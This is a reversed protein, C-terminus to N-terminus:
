ASSERVLVKLIRRWLRTFTSEGSAILHVTGRIASAPPVEPENLASLSVQYQATSPVLRQNADPQTEIPGGHVSALALTDIASAASVAIEELRVRMSSLQPVEPIFRGITHPQIRWLDPESVYGTLRLSRSGNILVLQENASIWRGPHLGANLEAVVGGTPARVELETRENALGQLRMELSQREGVLLLTDNRDSGDAAQRDLRVRVSKLRARTVTEDWAIDPAELRALLDGQQIQQGAHVQVAIVKAPRIPYVRVLDASELIAPLAVNTSWPVVFLAFCGAFIGGAVLARPKQFIIFRMRWWVKFERIVPLAIFYAIESLFLIVGLAKFFYSYVILAIGTFLVLRYICVVWAYSVLATVMRPPLREPCEAKLGFLFERLRWVGLEFARSQLNEIGLFDALIYYGDFRMLPNLNVALSMIWSTTAILFALHRPLGDSLFVWLFTCICALGIEVAIGAMDINLRQRRDQLRWADTVDTYLVPAMMMFAIGISPVRCRYRRAVYAHGLEHLAKVAFLALAFASAGAINTLGRAEVIFEDWQRSVFYLGLLGLALIGLQTPRKFLPATVRATADLFREPAFLPFKFFLYHHILTMLLRHGRDNAQVSLSGWSQPSAPEVLNHTKLFRVLRDIESAGPAIGFRAFAIEALDAATRSQRWITLLDFTPGDIKIYVHRLGDYILWSKDGTLSVQGDTISLDQRLAPLAANNVEGTGNNKVSLLVTM